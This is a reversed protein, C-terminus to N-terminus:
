RPTSPEVPHTWGYAHSAESKSLRQRDTPWDSNGSYNSVPKKLVMKSTTKSSASEESSKQMGIPSAPRQEFSGSRHDCRAATPARM